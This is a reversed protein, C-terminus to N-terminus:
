PTEAYREALSHYVRQRYGHMQQALDANALADGSAAATQAQLLRIPPMPLDTAVLPRPAGTLLLILALSLGAGILAGAPALWRRINGVPKRDARRRVLEGLEEALAAMRDPPLAGVNHCYKLLAATAMDDEPLEPHLEEGELAQALAEAERLERATPQREEQPGPPSSRLRDLDDGVARNAPPFRQENQDNTAM